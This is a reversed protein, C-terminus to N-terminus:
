FSTISLFLDPELSKALDEHHCDILARIFHRFWDETRSPLYSLLLYSARMPGHNMNEALINQKEEEGMVGYKMLYPLIEVPDLQKIIALTFLNLIKEDYLDSPIYKGSLINVVKQYGSYIFFLMWTCTLETWIKYCTVVTM